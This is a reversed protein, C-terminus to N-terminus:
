KVEMVIRFGGNSRNHDHINKNRTRVQCREEGSMWSGGRSVHFKGTQKTNCPNDKPSHKYYKGDFWDACMEWVNGSMDYLGLENPKKQGVPHTKGNANDKVWAVEYLSDSGCYKYGKTRDAGAAAYEWEAETPLRYTYGTKEKLRVFFLELSASDLNYVPCDLCDSGCGSKSGMVARWLQETVEYNSIYYDNLTVKHLPKANRKGHPNGMTFTAGRVLIMTTKVPQNDLTLPISIEDTLNAQASVVLSALLLAITILHKM